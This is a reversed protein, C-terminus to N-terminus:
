LHHHSEHRDMRENLQRLEHHLENHNLRILAHTEQFQQDVYRRDELHRREIHMQLGEALLQMEHRLGEVLVGSHRKAEVIEQRLDNTAVTIMQQIQELM